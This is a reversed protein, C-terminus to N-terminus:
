QTGKFYLLGEPTHMFKMDHVVVKLQQRDVELKDIVGFCTYTVDLQIAGFLPFPFEPPFV